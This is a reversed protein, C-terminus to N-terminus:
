KMSTKATSDTKMAPSITPRVGSNRPLFISDLSTRRAASATNISTPLMRPKVARETSVGPAGAPPPAGSLGEGGGGGGVAAGEPGRGAVGGVPVGWEGRRHPDPAEELDDGDEGERAREGALLHHGGAAARKGGVLRQEDAQQDADDHDDAGECEERGQRQTWDELLELQSGAVQM